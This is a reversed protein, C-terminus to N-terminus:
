FKIIKPTMTLDEVDAQILKCVHVMGGQLRCAGCSARTILIFWSNLYWFLLRDLYSLQYLALVNFSLGQTRSGTETLVKRNYARLVDRSDIYVVHYMGYCMDRVFRWSIPYEFLSERRLSYSHITFIRVYLCISM